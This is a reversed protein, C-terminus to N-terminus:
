LQEVIPDIIEVHYTALDYGEEYDMKWHLEGDWDRITMFGESPAAWNALVYQDDFAPVANGWTEFLVDGEYEFVIRAKKTILDLEYVMTRTFGREENGNDHVMLRLTNEDIVEILPGHSGIPWPDSHDGEMEFIPVGAAEFEAINEPLSPDGFAMIPEGTRLDMIYLWGSGPEHSDIAP